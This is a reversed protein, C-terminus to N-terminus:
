PGTRPRALRRTARGRESQPTRRLPSGAREASFRRSRALQQRGRLLAEAAGADEGDVLGAAAGGRCGGREDVEGVVRLPGDLAEHGRIDGEGSGVDARDGGREGCRGGRLLRGPHGPFLGDEEGHVHREDVAGGDGQRGGGRLQEPGAPVAAAGVVRVLSGRACDLFSGPLTQVSSMTDSVPVAVSRQNM